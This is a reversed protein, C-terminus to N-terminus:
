ALSIFNYVGVMDIFLQRWQKFLLESIALFVCGLNSAILKETNNLFISMRPRKNKLINRSIEFRGVFEHGGGTLFVRLGHVFRIFVFICVSVCLFQSVCVYLCLFLSLSQSFTVSLWLSVWLYHSVWDSKNVWKFDLFVSKCMCDTSFSLYESSLFEVFGNGRVCM